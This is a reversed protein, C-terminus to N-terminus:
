TNKLYSLKKKATKQALNISEWVSVVSVGEKEAIRTLTWGKRYLKFRRRQIATMSDLILKMKDKDTM